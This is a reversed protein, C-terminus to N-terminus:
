PEKCSTNSEPTCYAYHSVFSDHWHQKYQHGKLLEKINTSLIQKYAKFHTIEKSEKSNEPEFM